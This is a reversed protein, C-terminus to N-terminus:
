FSGQLFFVSDFSRSKFGTESRLSTKFRKFLADMSGFFSQFSVVNRRNHDCDSAFKSQNQDHKSAFVNGFALFLFKRRTQKCLPCVSTRCLLRREQLDWLCLEGCYTVALLLWETNSILWSVPSPLQMSPIRRM